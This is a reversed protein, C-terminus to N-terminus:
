RVINLVEGSYADIYYHKTNISGFEISLRWVVPIDPETRVYELFLQANDLSSYKLDAFSDVLMTIAVSSDILTDDVVIPMTQINGQDYNEYHNSISRDSNLYIIISQEDTKQSKFHASILWLHNGENELIIPMSVNSLYADRDWEIAEELLRPYEEKLSVIEPKLEYHQNGNCSTAVLIGATVLFLAIKINKM